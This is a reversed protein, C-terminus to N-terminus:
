VGVLQAPWGPPDSKFRPRGGPRMRPATDGLFKKIGGPAQQAFGAQNPSLLHIVVAYHHIYIAM